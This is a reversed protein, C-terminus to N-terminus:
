CDTVCGRRAAESEVAREVDSRSDDRQGVGIGSLKAYQRREAIDAPEIREVAGRESAAASNTCARAGRDAAGQEVVAGHAAGYRGALRECKEAVHAGGAIVSAM